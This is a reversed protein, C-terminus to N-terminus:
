HQNISIIRCMKRHVLFDTISHMKDELPGVWRANRSSSFPFLAICDHHTTSSVHRTLIGIRLKIAQQGVPSYNILASLERPPPAIPLYILLSRVEWFFFCPVDRSSKQIKIEPSCFLSRSPYATSLVFNLGRCLGIDRPPRQSWAWSVRCGINGLAPLLISLVPETRHLVSCQQERCSTLLYQMQNIKSCVEEGDMNVETGTNSEESSFGEVGFRTVMQQYARNPEDSRDSDYRTMKDVMQLKGPCFLQIQGPRRHEQLLFKM